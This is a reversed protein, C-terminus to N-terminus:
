YEGGPKEYDGGGDTPTGAPARLQLVFSHSHGADVSTTKPVAENHHIAELEAQSLVVTHVHASVESTTPEIGSSPPTELIAVELTLRHTHGDNANASSAFTVSRPAPEEESAGCTVLVQTAPVAAALTGVRVLFERRKM